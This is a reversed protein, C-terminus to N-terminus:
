RTIQNLVGDLGTQHRQRLRYLVDWVTLEQIMECHCSPCTQYRSTRIDFCHPCLSFVEPELFDSFAGAALRQRVTM